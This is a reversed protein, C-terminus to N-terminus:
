GAATLDSLDGYHIETRPLRDARTADIGSLGALFDPRM